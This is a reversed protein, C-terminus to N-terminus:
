FGTVDVYFTRDEVVKFSLGPNSGNCEAPTDLAAVTPECIGNEKCWVSVSLSSNRHAAAKETWAALKGHGLLAGRVINFKQVSLFFAIYVWFIGVPM